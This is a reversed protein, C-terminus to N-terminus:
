KPLETSVITLLKKLAALLKDISPSDTLTSQEPDAPNYSYYISGIQTATARNAVDATRNTCTVGGASSKAQPWALVKYYGPGDGAAAMNIAGPEIKGSVPSAHHNAVPLLVPSPTAKSATGDQHVIQYYVSDTIGCDGPTSINPNDADIIIKGAPVIGDSGLVLSFGDQSNGDASGWVNDWPIRAVPKGKGPCAQFKVWEIPVYFDIERSPTSVRISHKQVTSPCSFLSNDFFLDGRLAVTILDTMGNTRPNAVRGVVQFQEGIGPGDALQARTDLSQDGDKDYRVSTIEEGTPVEIVFDVRLESDDDAAAKNAWGLISYPATTLKPIDGQLSTAYSSTSTLALIASAAANVAVFTLLHKKELPM